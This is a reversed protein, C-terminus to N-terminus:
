LCELTVRYFREENGVKGGVLFWGANGWGVSWGPIQTTPIAHGTRLELPADQGDRNGFPFFISM